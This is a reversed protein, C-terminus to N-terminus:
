EQGKPPKAKAQEVLARAQADLEDQERVDDTSAAASRPSNQVRLQAAQLEQDLLRWGSKARQMRSAEPLTNLAPYDAKRAQKSAERLWPPADKSAGSTACGSMTALALVVALRPPASMKM